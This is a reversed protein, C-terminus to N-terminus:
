PKQNESLKPASSFDVGGLDGVSVATGGNPDPQANLSVFVGGKMYERSGDMDSKDLLRGFGRKKMEADYYDTVEKPTGASSQYVRVGYPTGDMHASFLRLTKGPPRPALDSDTGPVDNSGQPYLNDLKFHDETWAVLVQTGHTGKKAYAYRLAGLDGLDHTKVFKLAAKVGDKEQDPTKALCSVVGEDDNGRRLFTLPNKGAPAAQVAMGKKGLQKWLDASAGQNARCHTEFRDLVTKASEDTVGSSMWIAQGNLNIRHPEQLLDGMAALQRGVGMAGEDAQTQASSYGAGVGVALSVTLGFAFVRALGQRHRAKKANFPKLRNLKRLALLIQIM